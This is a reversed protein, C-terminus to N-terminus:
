KKGHRAIAYKTAYNLQDATQILEPRLVRMRVWERLVDAPEIGRLYIQYMLYFVGSRGLGASCHILTRTQSNAIQAFYGEFTEATPEEKPVGFDSWEKVRMCITDRNLHKWYEDPTGGHVPIDGIAIIAGVNGSLVIAELDRIAAPTARPWQTIGIGHGMWSGYGLISNENRPCSNKFQHLDSDFAFWADRLAARQGKRLRAVMTDFQDGTVNGPTHEIGDLLKPDYEASQAWKESAALNYVPQPAEDDSM